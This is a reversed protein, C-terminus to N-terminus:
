HQGPAGDVGYAVRTLRVEPEEFVDLLQIMNRHESLTRMTSVKSVLDAHLGHMVDRCGDPLLQKILCVGDLSSPWVCAFVLCSWTDLLVLCAGRKQRNFFKANDRPILKIAVTQKTAKCEGKYVRAFAGRGLLEQPTFAFKQVKPQAVSTIM